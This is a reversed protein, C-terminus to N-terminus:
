GLEKEWEEITQTPLELPENRVIEHLTRLINRREEHDDTRDYEFCLEVISAIRQKEDESVSPSKAANADLSRLADMLAHDRELLPRGLTDEAIIELVSVRHLIHAPAKPNLGSFFAPSSSGIFWSLSM